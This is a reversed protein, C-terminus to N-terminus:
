FLLVFSIGIAFILYPSLIIVIAKWGLKALRDIVESRFEAYDSYGPSIEQLIMKWTKM